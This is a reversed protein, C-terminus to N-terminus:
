EIPPRFSPFFSPHFSLSAFVLDRRKEEFLLPVFVMQDYCPRSIHMEPIHADVRSVSPKEHHKTSILDTTASFKHPCSKGPCGSLSTVM